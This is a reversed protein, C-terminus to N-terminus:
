YIFASFTVKSNQYAYRKLYLMVLPIAKDEPITIQMSAVLYKFAICGGIVVFPFHMLLFIVAM